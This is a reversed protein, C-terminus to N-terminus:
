YINFRHLIQKRPQQKPFCRKFNIIQLSGFPSCISSMRCTVGHFLDQAVHQTYFYENFPMEEQKSHGPAQNPVCLLFLIENCLAATFGLQGHQLIPNSAPPM